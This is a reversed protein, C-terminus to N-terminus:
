AARHCHRRKRLGADAGPFHYIAGFAVVSALMHFPVRAREQGDVEAVLNEGDKRLSAGETTIYVTNLLKKMSDSGDATALSEVMRRRWARAPRAVAYPRCLEVLSCARCRESKLTPPPTARSAFVAALEKITTLTLQRLADDFPVAVRRKTEGYFLAGEPVPKGTMEELCLGQACLQVEDARHLKPKGRKFEVPYPTEDGRGIFSSWM